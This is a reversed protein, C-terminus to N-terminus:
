VAGPVTRSAANALAAWEAARQAAVVRVLPACHDPLAATIERWQAGTIETALLTRLLLRGSESGKLSPDKVLTRVAGDARREGPGEGAYSTGAPQRAVVAAPGPAAGSRGGPVPEEGRRVRDRVDRVTAPSVGSLRALERLSAGPDAAMLQAALRRGEGSNVPRVTGDRGVRTHAQPIEETACRRLLGVTKGTLGVCEAISRDSWHPHSRLVRVAATRREARTLPMGHRINLKVSLVYADAESGDFFQVAIEERGRLVTASLRHMGDIVRKTQRHVLIPDFKGELAALERVYQEDCARSRPSDSPMLTGVPVMLTAMGTGTSATEAGMVAVALGGTPIGRRTM